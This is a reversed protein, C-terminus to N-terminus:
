PTGRLLEIFPERLDIPGATYSDPPSGILWQRFTPPTWGYARRVNRCRRWRNRKNNPERVVPGSM